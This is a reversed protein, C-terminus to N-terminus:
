KAQKIADIIKRAENASAESPATQIYTQLFEEWASRHPKIQADFSYLAEIMTGKKTPHGARNLWRKLGKESSQCRNWCLTLSIESNRKAPKSVSPLACVEADSLRNLFTILKGFDFMMLAVSIKSAHLLLIPLYEDRLKDGIKLMGSKDVLLSKSSRIEASQEEAIKEYVVNRLEASLDFLRFPKSNTTEPSLKTRKNPLAPYRKMSKRKKINAVKLKLKPRQSATLMSDM